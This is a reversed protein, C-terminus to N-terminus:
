FTNRLFNEMLQKSKHSPNRAKCAEIHRSINKHNWKEASTTFDKNCFRCNEEM